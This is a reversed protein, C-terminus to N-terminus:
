RWHRFLSCSCPHHFPVVGFQLGEAISKLPVMCPPSDCVQEMLDDPISFTQVDEELVKEDPFLEDGKGSNRDNVEVPETEILQHLSDGIIEGNSYEDGGTRIFNGRGDHKMFHVM